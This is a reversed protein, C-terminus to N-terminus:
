PHQCTVAESACSVLGLVGATRAMEVITFESYPVIENTDVYRRLIPYPDYETHAQPFAHTDDQIVVHYPNNNHLRAMPGFVPIGPVPAEIGDYMSPKHLPDQPARTGIGTIFSLNLPNAGLQTNLNLLAADWYRGDNTLAYAQLLGFAYTTSHTFTGWGIWAPVDLRAGNHYPATLTTNLLTTADVIISDTIQQKWTTNVEPWATNVYAWSAKRQHQQWDNWGWLPAHKAWHTAFATHYAPAGTTRYLEAAAWARKDTDGHPDPYEGTCIGEPNAFGTAPEPDPHAELFAWARQARDLYIAARDADYPQWL